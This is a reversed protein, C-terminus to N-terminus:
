KGFSADDAELIPIGEGLRFPQSDPLSLETVKDIVGLSYDIQVYGTTLGFPLPQATEYQQEGVTEFAHPRLV